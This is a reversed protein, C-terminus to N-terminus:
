LHTENLIYGNKKLFSYEYSEDDIIREVILEKFKTLRWGWKAADRDTVGIFDNIRPIWFADVNPNLEITQHVIDLLEGTPLEDADLQFIYPNKCKSKGFNKHESYSDTLKRQHLKFFGLYKDSTFEELIDITKNSNSFDDLIVCEDGDKKHLFIKELLARLSDDENKCTVLYSISIPNM